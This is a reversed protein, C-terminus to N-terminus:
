KKESLYKKQNEKSSDIIADILRVTQAADRIDIYNKQESNLTQYFSEILPIHGSGYYQKGIVKMTNSALVMKGNGNEYYLERDNMFIQLEEFVFEFEVDSDNCHTVTGLFVGKYGKQFQIFASATDEVEIEELLCNGMIGKVWLAEGCIFRLLDITHIAQSLLLGSGALSKKGRWLDRTYYDLPRNWSLVAKVGKLKGFEGTVLLDKIKQTTANFRNQLCVGCQIHFESEIDIITEIDKYNLGGPKELIINLGKEAAKRAYQTHLHHPLCIHVCDLAENECMAEFDNYFPVNPYKKEKEPNCDCVAVLKAQESQNIAEVHTRSIAGLGIVAVKLM